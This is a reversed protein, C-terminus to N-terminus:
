TRGRRRQLLLAPIALITLTAPAPITAVFAEEAGSPNFGSGALTRGDGSIAFIEFRDWGSPTSVGYMSLFDTMRVMGTGPTWVFATREGGSVSGGIVLGDDSTAYAISYSSGPLTGLQELGADTWRAALGGAYGVIVSGDANVGQARTFMGAPTFLPQMGSSERWVFAREIVNDCAGVITSGDRSVANASSRIAGPLWGLGQMGGQETWRFAQTLYVGQSIDRYEVRGVVVEGSGSIGGAVAGPYSPLSGLNQLPGNGTKRYAHTPYTGGNLNSFSGVLTQGDNTAGVSVTSIPMGPELGFDYRGTAATWVFGPYSPPFLSYGSGGVVVSGDWSLGRVVSAETGPARGLAYFGPAQACAAAASCALTAVATLPGPM